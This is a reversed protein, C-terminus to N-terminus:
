TAPTSSTSAAAWHTPTPASKVLLQVSGVRDAVTLGLDSVPADEWRGAGISPRGDDEDPSPPESVALRGDLRLFGAACEATVAPPGFGRAVVLTLALVALGVGIVLLGAGTSLGTVVLVFAAIAIPFRLLNYGSDAGLQHLWGRRVPQSTTSPTPLVATDSTM